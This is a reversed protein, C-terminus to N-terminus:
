WPRGRGRILECEDTNSARASRRRVSRLGAPHNRDIAPPCDGPVRHTTLSALGRGDRDSLTRSTLSTLAPRIKVGRHHHRGSDTDPHRNSSTRTQTTRYFNEVVDAGINLPPTRPHPPAAADTPPRAVHQPASAASAARAPGASCARGTVRSCASTEARRRAVQDADRDAFQRPCGAPM